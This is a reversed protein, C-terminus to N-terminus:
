ESCCALTVEPAHAPFRTSEWLQRQTCINCKNPRQNRDCLIVPPKTLSFFYIFWFSSSFIIEASGGASWAVDAENARRLRAPRRLMQRWDNWKRATAHAIKSSGPGIYKSKTCNLHIKIQMKTNWAQCMSSWDARCGVFPFFSVIWLFSLFDKNAQTCKGQCKWLGFTHVCAPIQKDGHTQWTISQCATWDSVLRRGVHCSDLSYRSSPTFPRM